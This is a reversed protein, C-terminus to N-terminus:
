LISFLNSFFTGLFQGFLGWDGLTYTSSMGGGISSLAEASDVPCELFNSPEEPNVQGLSSQPTTCTDTNM